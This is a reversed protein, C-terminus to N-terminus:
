SEDEVRRLVIVGTLEAVLEGRERTVVSTKKIFQLTGDKKTYVDTIVPTSTLIEECMAISHYEFSQEAHMVDRVDVGIDALWDFPDPRQLEICFLFTPPVPIHTFGMARAADVDIFIPNTEGICEAFRRLHAPSVRVTTAPLVTGILGEHVPM